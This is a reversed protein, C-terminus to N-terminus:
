ASDEEDDLRRVLYQILRGEDDRVQWLHYRTLYRVGAMSYGDTRDTKVEAELRGDEAHTVTGLHERLWEVQLPVQAGDALKSTYIPRATQAFGAKFEVVEAPETEPPYLEEIVGKYVPDLADDDFSHELRYPVQNDWPTMFVLVNELNWAASEQEPWIREDVGMQNTVEYKNHGSRKILTRGQSVFDEGESIYYDPERTELDDPWDYEIRITGDPDSQVIARVPDLIKKIVAFPSEGNAYCTYPLVPYDDINWTVPGLDGALGDVLVSAKGHYGEAAESTLLEAFDETLLVVPSDAQVIFTVSGNRESVSEPTDEVILNYTVGDSVYTIADGVEIAQHDRENLLHFECGIGRETFNPEDSIHVCPITNGNHTVSAIIDEVLGDGEMWFPMVLPIRLPNNILLSYVFDSYARVEKNAIHYPMDLSVIHSKLIAYSMDLTARHQLLDDYTMVLAKRLMPCNDYPMDLVAKVMPCNDYRMVTYARLRLAYIIDLTSRRDFLLAYGMELAVRNVALLDGYPMDLYARVSAGPLSWTILEDRLALDMIEVFSADQQEHLVIYETITGPMENNEARGSGIRVALTATGAFTGVADSGISAGNVYGVLYDNEKQTLAYSNYNTTTATGSVTAGTGDYAFFDVDNAAGANFALRSYLGDENYAFPRYEASTNDAQLFTCITLETPDVASLSPLLINNTGDFHIGKGYATEVLDSVAFTGSPTGHNGNATSDIICGAGGTPDNNLHWVGAYKSAYVTQAPTSGTAGVYTSNDAHTEDYYFYFINDVSSSLTPLRVWIIATESTADWEVKEIYCQVGTSGVELAIKLFNAGLQTFVDTNDFDSVGSADNIPVPAAIDSQAADILPQAITLKRKQAPNWGSLAM